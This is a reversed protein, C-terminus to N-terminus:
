VQQVIRRAKKSTRQLAHVWDYGGKLKANFFSIDDYDNIPLRKLFLRQDLRSSRGIITTVGKTYGSQALLRGLYDVFTKDQEPFAYPYSFSDVDTALKDQIIDKSQRVEKELEVREIEVLKSHTLSHSGFAVGQHALAKANEWSMVDQGALEAGMLGPSIFVTASFGYGKIIPFATRYFDSLGDDFTIVAHLDRQNVTGGLVDTLGDLGITKYGNEKLFNMQNAFVRASTTTEYYPHIGSRKADSIGHYMLIPIRVERLPKRKVLPFFFNLTLFRDTRFSPMSHKLTAPSAQYDFELESAQAANRL